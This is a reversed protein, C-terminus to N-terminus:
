KSGFYRAFKAEYEKVREGMTFRNSKIVEYISELEKENWSSDCLPYDLDETM